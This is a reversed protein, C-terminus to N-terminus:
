LLPATNNNSWYESLTKSKLLAKAVHDVHMEILEDQQDSEYCENNGIKMDFQTTLWEPVHMNALYGIRIKFDKM